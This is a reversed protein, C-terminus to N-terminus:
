YRFAGVLSQLDSAMRALETAARQSDNAGAATSEAARAVSAMNNTIEISGRSADTVSRAIESTTAAQEEVASAITDQFEAIQDIIGVIGGISEVSSQTDAQIAEIKRAIDETATATAKALEKVENAVVAFGKGAEGARAAEITANLALLNTQQAIGTIVKVIQGIEASSDGLKSVTVNTSRAAEVAQSAVRAADSANKAIERISASMEEAGSSVTEVNRSVEISAGSVLNVQDSTEASNAGMQVSVVQLQEAAAALAESNTAISSISLRLDNLLKAIGKGMKGVADEGTIKVQATLDGSAAQDITGLLSDVKTQLEAAASREREHMEASEREMRLKETILSWSAMAGLYTGEVDRIASVNLELTEPGVQINASHPLFQEPSGLLRRQHAPNKHFIDINKGILDDAKVPLHQELRRLTNTSAPNMYVLNLDTDCYMINIPANEVMATIRGSEAQLQAMKSVSQLVKRWVLVLVALAIIGGIAVITESTGAASDASDLVAKSRVDIAAEVAAMKDKLSNFVALWDQYQKKAAIREDISGTTIKSWSTSMDISAQGYTAVEPLIEKLMKTIAPEANVAIADNINKSFDPVSDKLEQQNDDIAQQSTSDLLASGFVTARIADHLMDAQFVADRTEAIANRQALQDGQNTAGYEAVAVVIVLAAIIIGGFRLLQTRNLTQRASAAARGTGQTTSTM